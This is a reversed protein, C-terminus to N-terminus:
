LGAPRGTAPQKGHWGIADRREQFRTPSNPPTSAQRQQDVNWSTFRPNDPERRRGTLQELFRPSARDLVIIESKADPQDLPRIICIVEADGSRRRIEDLAAQERDSLDVNRAPPMPSEASALTVGPLPGAPSGRDPSSPPTSPMRKPLPSPTTQAVVPAARQPTPQSPAYVSALQLRDLIAQISSLHAYVGEDDAPDAAYCVGILRGDDDFLGGGSRGEVPMGAVELNAPGLYKDIGTVRSRVVTPDDGNNCGVSTVRDGLEIRHGKSAVQATPLRRNPRFRILGLDRKLDFDVLQARFRQPTGGDFVDVWIDGQGRSDRFIHGCTLVLTEEGRRDIMTGTGFSHGQPDDVQIRVAAADVRRSVQDSGTNAVHNPSQQRSAFSEEAAPRSQGTSGSQSVGARNLMELLRSEGVAGVARDVEQGERLMVFCPIGTVRYRAALERQQDVDVSRIPYGQASLKGVLPKISRCPGCWPATFQLLVTQQGSVQGTGGLAIVLALSSLSVM